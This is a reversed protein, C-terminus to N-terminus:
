LLLPPRPSNSRMPPTSYTTPPCALSEIIPDDAASRSNAPGPL